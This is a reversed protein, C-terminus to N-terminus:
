LVLAFRAFYTSKKPKGKGPTPSRARAAIPGCIGDTAAGLLAATMEAAGVTVFDARNLLAARDSGMRDSGM